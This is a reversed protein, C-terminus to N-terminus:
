GSPGIISVFKGPPVALDIPQLATVASDTGTAFVQSVEVLELKPRHAEVEAM